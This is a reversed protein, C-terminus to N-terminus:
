GPPPEPGCPQLDNDTINEGYRVVIGAKKLQLEFSDEEGPAITQLDDETRIFLCQNAYVEGGIIIRMYGEITVDPGPVFYTEALLAQAKTIPNIGGATTGEYQGTLPNFGLVLGGFLYFGPQTNVLPGFYFDDFIPNFVEIKNSSFSRIQPNTSM